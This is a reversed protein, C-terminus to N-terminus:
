CDHMKTKEDVLKHEASKQKRTETVVKWHLEQITEYVRLEWHESQSRDGESSCERARVLYEKAQDLHRLTEVPLLHGERERLSGILSPHIGAAQAWAILDLHSVTEKSITGQVEM